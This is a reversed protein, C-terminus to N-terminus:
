LRKYSVFVKATLRRVHTCANFSNNFPTNHTSIPSTISQHNVPSQLMSCVMAYAYYVGCSRASFCVFLTINLGLDVMCVRM